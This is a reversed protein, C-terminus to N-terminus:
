AARRGSRWSWPRGSRFIDALTRPLREPDAVLRPAGPFCAILRTWEVPEDLVMLSGAPM